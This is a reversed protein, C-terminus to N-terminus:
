RAGPDIEDTARHFIGDVQLMHGTSADDLVGEFAIPAFAHRALFGYVQGFLPGDDYVPLLSLEVEVLVIAGLAGTAGRLAELEYGQTDIKLLVRRADRAIEPWIADLREVAIAELDVRAPSM